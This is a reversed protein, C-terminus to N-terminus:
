IFTYTHAREMNSTGGGHYVVGVLLGAVELEVLAVGVLALRVLVLGAASQQGM